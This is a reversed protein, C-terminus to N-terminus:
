ATGSSISSKIPWRWRTPFILDGANRGVLLLVCCLPRRTGSMLFSFKIGPADLTWCGRMLTWKTMSAIPIAAQDHSKPFVKIVARNRDDKIEKQITCLTCCGEKRKKPDATRQNMKLPWYFDFFFHTM